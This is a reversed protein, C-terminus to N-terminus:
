ENRRESARECLAGRVQHLLLHALDLMAVVDGGGGGKGGGKGVGGSGGCGAAQRLWSVAAEVNEEMGVGHLCCRALERQAAAIGGGAARALYRIARRADPKVFWARKGSRAVDGM